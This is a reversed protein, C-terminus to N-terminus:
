KMGRVKRYRQVGWEKKMDGKKNEPTHEREAIGLRVLYQLSGLARWPKIDTKESLEDLSQWNHTLAAEVLSRLTGKRTM